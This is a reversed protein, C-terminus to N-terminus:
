FIPERWGLACYRVGWLGLGYGGLVVRYYTAHFLTGKTPKVQPLIDSSDDDSTDNDDDSDSKGKGKSKDDNAKGDDKKKRM